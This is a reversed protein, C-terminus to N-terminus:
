FYLKSLRHEGPFYILNTQRFGAFSQLRCIRFRSSRSLKSPKTPQLLCMPNLRLCAPHIPRLYVPFCAIASSSPPSSSLLSSPLCLPVLRITSSYYDDVLLVSPYGAPGGCWVGSLEIGELYNSFLEASFPIESSTLSTMFGLTTTSLASMRSPLKQNSAETNDRDSAAPQATRVM